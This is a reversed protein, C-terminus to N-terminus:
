VPGHCRIGGPGRPISRERRLVAVERAEKLSQRGQRENEEGHLARIRGSDGIIRTQDMGLEGLEVRVVRAEGMAGVVGIVQRKM